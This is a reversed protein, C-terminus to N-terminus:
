EFLKQQLEAVLNRGFPVLKIINKRELSRLNRLLSTKPILLKHQITSRKAKGGCALLFKVIEAEREALTSIIAEAKAGAGGGKAVGEEKPREPEGKGAGGVARRSLYYAVALVFLAVLLYAFYEAFSSKRALEIRLLSIEGQRIEANASGASTMTSASIICTGVPLAKFMYEGAPGSKVPSGKGEHEFWDSTCSVRLDADAVPKGEEVIDVALSGAPYLIAAMEEAKPISFYATTAYDVGPTEINDIMCAMFYKGVDLPLLVKGDMGTILRYAIQSEGDKKLAIVVPMGAAPSANAFFARLELVNETKPLSPMVLLSLDNTSNQQAFCASIAMFLLFSIVSGARMADSKEIFINFISRNKM